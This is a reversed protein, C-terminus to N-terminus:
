TVTSQSLTGWREKSLANIMMHWWEVDGNSINLVHLLYVAAQLADAAECVCFGCRVCSDFSIAWTTTATATTALFLLDHAAVSPIDTGVCVACLCLYTVIM